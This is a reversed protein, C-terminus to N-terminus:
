GRYGYHSISSGARHNRRHIEPDRVKDLRLEGKMDLVMRSFESRAPAFDERLKAYEEVSLHEIATPIHYGAIVSAMTGNLLSQDGQECASVANLAFALPRDTFADFGQNEAIQDAVGSIILDAVGRPVVLWSGSHSRGAVYRAATDHILNRQELMRRVADSVKQEHLLEWGPIETRGLQDILLTFSASRQPLTEKCLDLARELNGMFADPLSLAPKRPAVSKVAGPCCDLLSRLQPSDEHEVDDPLIRHVEDVLLLVQRLWRHDPEFDPYYLCRYV